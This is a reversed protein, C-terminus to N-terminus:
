VRGNFAEQVLPKVRPLDMKRRCEPCARLLVKRNAADEPPLGAQDLLALVHELEKASAFYAGCLNCAALRFEARITLDERSFSALEFDHGLKIAGTPCVEECRACFICRGYFLSWTRVGQELDTHMTLANPPCAITCAACAICQQPDYEPMGRFGPALEVPTFPYPLTAQGVKLVERILKLVM